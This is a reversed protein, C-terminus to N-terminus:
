QPRGFILYCARNSTYIKAGIERSTSVECRGRKSEIKGTTTRITENGVQHTSVNYFEVKTRKPSISAIYGGKANKEFVIEPEAILEGKETYEKLGPIPEGNDYPMEFMVDGNEYYGVQVGHKEDNIYPTKRYVGGGKRYYTATDQKLGQEFQIITNIEGSDYYQIAKGHKLSDKMEFTQKVTKADEYFITMVDNYPDENYVAKEVKTNSESSCAICFLVIISNFFLRM